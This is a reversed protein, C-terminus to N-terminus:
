RAGGRTLRTRQDMLEGRKRDLDALVANCREAQTELRAVARGIRALQESRSNHPTVPWLAPRGTTRNM